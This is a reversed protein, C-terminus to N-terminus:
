KIVEIKIDAVHSGWGAYVKWKNTKKIREIECGNIFCAELKNEIERWTGEFVDGKRLVGTRGVRTLATLKYKKILETQGKM